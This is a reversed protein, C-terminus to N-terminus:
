LYMDIFLVLVYRLGRTIRLGSHYIRGSHVIADGQNGVNRIGDFFQTGGGDYDNVESLSINISLYSVDLHKELEEQLGTYEYKVIFMDRINFKVNNDLCYSRKVKDFLETIKLLIPRFISKINQVELDVTPYKIHRKTLWGGNRLAYEEAETIIWKCEQKTFTNNYIFRQNFRTEISISKGQQISDTLHQIEDKICPLYEDESNKCMDSRNVLKFNTINKYLKDRMITLTNKNLNLADNYLLENFFDYTITTKSDYITVYEANDKKFSFIPIDKQYLDDTTSTYIPIDLPCIEWINIAIFNQVNELNDVNRQKFQDIVRHCMSGNFTVSKNKIPFILNLTNNDTFEKYKYTEEDIDTLALPFLSNSLYTINSLIPRACKRYKNYLQEYKDVRFDYLGRAKKNDTSTITHKILFEIYVKNNTNRNISNLQHMAADYVFKEILSLMTQNTDLIHPTTLSTMNTNGGIQNQKVNFYIDILRDFQETDEVYDISEM